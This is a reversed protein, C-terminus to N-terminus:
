RATSRATRASTACGSSSRCTSTSRSQRCRIRAGSCTAIQIDLKPGYFAAEGEATVYDLGLEDMAERLVRQGLEWM